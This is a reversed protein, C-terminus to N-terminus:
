SPPAAMAGSPLGVRPSPTPRGDGGGRGFSHALCAPCPPRPRWGGGRSVRIDVTVSPRGSAAAAPVPGGRRPTRTARRSPGARGDRGMGKTTDSDGTAGPGSGCRPRRRRPTGPPAAGGGAHHGPRRLRLAPALAAPSDSVHTHAPAPGRAPPAVPIRSPTQSALRTAPDRQLIRAALRRWSLLRSHCKECKINPCQPGSLCVSRSPNEVLETMREELPGSDAWRLRQAGHASFPGVGENNVDPLKQLMAELRSNKCIFSEARSGGRVHRGM